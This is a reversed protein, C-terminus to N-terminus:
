AHDVEIQYAVCPDLSHVLLEAHQHAQARTAAPLGTLGHVCPGDPHFNWETPAVLCYDAIMGQKDLVVRHLLLGRANQVWAIGIGSACPAGQVFSDEPLEPARLRSFLEGIEALRAILRLATSPAQKDLVQAIPQCHQMRALAGTEAAHGQWVPHAPFDPDDLLVPVLETLVQQRTAFPMLAVRNGGAAVNKSWCDVLLRTTATNAADLAAILSEIDDIQDLCAGAPGLLTDNVANELRAIGHHWHSEETSSLCEALQRRLTALQEPQSPAHLIRPLDLLVRWLIEQLAEALVRRERSLPVSPATNTAAAELATAAAAAQAQGCLSFVMPIIRVAEQPSKGRLLTNIQVLPRPDIQVRCIRTGDWALRIGITGELAM